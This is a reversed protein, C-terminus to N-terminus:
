QLFIYRYMENDCVTSTLRREVLVYDDSVVYLYRVVRDVNTYIIYINHTGLFEIM